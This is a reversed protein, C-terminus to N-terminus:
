AAVDWQPAWPPNILRGDPRALADIRECEDKTLEFGFVDMNTAARQIHSSKPIAIVGEQQVLWRIAVQAPTVEHAHAVAELTADHMVKGQALPSYATLALGLRRCAELVPAQSLFPHYEVQNVALAEPCFAVAQELLDATFNAVGIARTLGRRKSRALAEMTAKLPFAPNPWHLLLLDVHDLGLRKLGAEAAAELKNPDLDDKWIKTTVFVEGRPVGSHRLGEGVEAENKYMAATDVHRYGAHLARSVLEACVPKEIQWVGLGVVPIEVGATFVTNM